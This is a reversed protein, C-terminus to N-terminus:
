HLGAGPMAFPRCHAWDKSISANYLGNANPTRPDIYLSDAGGKTRGYWWDAFAQSSSKQVGNAAANTFNMSPWPCGHCICTCILGGHPSTPSATLPALSRVFDVGYQLVARQKQLEDADVWNTQLINGLQWSDFRSNLMFLPTEITDVMHPSMFCLHPATPHRLRCAETLGGDPGFSMNQMAYVYKMYFTYNAGTGPENWAGTSTNYNSWYDTNPGGRGDASYGDSHAFNDHDQFFGVIPNAKYTTLKPSGAKLRAGVRDAHLFTSLGGASEGTLLVETAGSLGGHAFLWDITADLNRIGRFWLSQNTGPVPWPKARYGSFSAGDLYLLDVSNCDQALSGDPLPNGCRMHTTPKAVNSTGLSGKARCLCDNEDYCWGGGQINITWKTSTNSGYFYFGFPSGDLGAPYTAEEGKPQPLKILNGVGPSASLMAPPAASMESNCRTPKPKPKPRPSPSPPAPPTPPGSCTKICDTCKGTATIGPNRTKGGQEWWSAPQCDDGRVAKSLHVCPQGGWKGSKRSDTAAVCVACGKGSLNPCAAATGLSPPPAGRANAGTALGVVLVAVAALMVFRASCSAAM